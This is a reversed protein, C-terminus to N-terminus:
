MLQDVSFGLPGMLEQDIAVAEDQGSRCGPGTLRVTTIHYKIRSGYADM